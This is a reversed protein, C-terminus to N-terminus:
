AEFRRWGRHPDHWIAQAGHEALLRRATRRDAALVIKTLADALLCSAAVVSVSVDTRVGRRRRGDLHPGCWRGRRRRRSALGASGAVAGDGLELVPVFGPAPGDLRLHVLEARPGFVRLDGGANVSGQQAGHARLLAVARDVAYGKAIGGLDLWLPRRLRVCGDDLLELDRWDAEPDPPRSSRPAPLFGRAVLRTAVTPDFCGDSAAALRRAATLVEHTRPDM